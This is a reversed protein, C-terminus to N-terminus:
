LGGCAGCGPGSVSLSIPVGNSVGTSYVVTRNLSDSVSRVDAADYSISVREVGLAHESTIGRGLADYAFTSYEIYRQDTIGTLAQPFDANGYHFTTRPNDTDDGPTADPEVVAALNGIGDYEYRWTRGAHDSMAIIRNSEDYAFEIQAGISSTVKTMRDNADYQVYEVVGNLYEISILKGDARYTEVTNDMTTYRWGSWAGASNTLRALNGHVDSDSIWETDSLTYFLRKGDTRMVIATSLGSNTNLLVRASFSYRWNDGFAGAGMAINETDTSNYYRVFQIDGIGTSNRDIQVEFKNGTGIAIPNGVPCQSNPLSLEKHPNIENVESMCTVANLFEYGAPCVSPATVRNGGGCDGSFWFDAFKGTVIGDEYYRTHIECVLSGYPSVGWYMRYALWLDDIAKSISGAPHDGTYRGDHAIYPPGQYIPPVMVTAAMSMPM